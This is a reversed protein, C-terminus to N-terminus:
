RANLGEFHFFHSPHSRRTSNKIFPETEPMIKGSIDSELGRCGRVAGTAGSAKRAVIKFSYVHKICIRFASFYTLITAKIIQSLFEVGEYKNILAFLSIAFNM